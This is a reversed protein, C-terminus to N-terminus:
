IMSWNILPFGTVKVNVRLNFMNPDIKVSTRSELFM